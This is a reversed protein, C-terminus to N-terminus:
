IDKVWMTWLSDTSWAWDVRGEASGTKWSQERMSFECTPMRWEQKKKKLDKSMKSNHSIVVVKEKEWSIYLYFLYEKEM